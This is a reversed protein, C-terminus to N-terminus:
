MFFKSNYDSKKIIRFDLSFRTFKSTNKAAGHILQGEFMSSSFYPVMM